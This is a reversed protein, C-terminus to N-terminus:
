DAIFIKIFIGALTFVFFWIAIQWTTIMQAFTFLVAMISCIFSAAVFADSKNNIRAIAVGFVIFLILVAILEGAMTNTINIFDFLSRSTTLNYDTINYM